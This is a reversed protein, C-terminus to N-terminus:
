DRLQRLLSAWDSKTAQELQARCADQGEITQTQGLCQQYEWQDGWTIILPISYVAFMGLLGLGMALYVIVGRALPVRRALAIGRIALILSVVLAALGLVPWPLPLTLGIMTVLAGAGFGFVFRNVRVLDRKQEPTMAKLEREIQARRAARDSDPRRPGQPGHPGQPGTPPPPEPSETPQDGEPPTELNAM